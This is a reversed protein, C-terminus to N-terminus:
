NVPVLRKLEDTWHQVVIIQTADAPSPKIMLLRQGDRSVDYDRIGGGETLYSGELVKTPAGASWANSKTDVKVAMIAGGPAEYFLEQGSPAWVPRGGGAVSVQSQGGSVNPFPRVFIEFRGSSSDSAYALWREDPSLAGNNENAPTQILSQVKPTGELSVLMVDLPGGTYFVLRTGDRTLSTPFWTSGLPADARVEGALPEASGSGDAPQWFMTPGNSRQSTYLLRDGRPSWMPFFDNAPDFTRRDLAKRALDWTWIDGELTVAIKSGDPSLRPQSYTRPPAALPEERGQRDVWVMTRGVLLNPADAYTLTGDRSVSYSTGRIRSVITAPTGRTELTALDFAVAKLTGDSVHVLHGSPVFQPSSGGRILVRQTGTTLDLVAVQAAGIGGTIARISFLVARGGPLVAPSVHDLEGRAADPRSLVSTEGGNSSVRLLGVARDPDDFIITDDPAWTGSGGERVLTTAPGGTIAVKKLSGGELFGVWQGDPSVFVQNVPTAATFIPTPDLQDLSRVFIQTDNNGAYVVRSGDPTMALAGSPTGTGSMGMALRTLRATATEADPARRSFRAFVGFAIAVAIAAVLWPVWELRRNAIAHPQEAASETGTLTDELEVRGDGIDQLRRRLDKQLCRRMVRRIPLPTAVPLASWDPERELIAALVDTTTTGGFARRGTLMKYLVCGFAWIDTRKDVALGRAQEPSMYAATGLVIGERTGVVTTPQAESIKSDAPGAAKALGFDLVKVVGAPTVMVNAPKLDRHIIGREHAAELADAIQRAIVVAEDLPLAEGVHERSKLKGALTQGDILELVLASGGDGEELGYIGGIHPHNLSALLRGEREFRALREPDTTLEHPLVKIAVSRGLKTDRARYVEGMGGAGLPAIIEYPGFRTGAALRM